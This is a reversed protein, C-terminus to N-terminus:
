RATPEKPGNRTDLIIRRMAVLGPNSTVCLGLFGASLVPSPQFPMSATWPTLSCPAICPVFGWISGALSPPWRTSRKKLIELCCLITTGTSRDHLGVYVCCCRQTTACMKSGCMLGNLPPRNEPCNTTLCHKVYMRSTPLMLGTNRIKPNKGRQPSKLKLEWKQRGVFGHGNRRGKPM